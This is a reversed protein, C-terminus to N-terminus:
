IINGIFEMVKLFSKRPMYFECESISYELLINIIIILPQNDHLSLSLSVHVLVEMGIKKNLVIMVMFFVQVPLQLLLQGTFSNRTYYEM